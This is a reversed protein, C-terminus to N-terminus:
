KTNIKYKKEDRLWKYIKRRSRGVAKIAARVDALPIEYRGSIYYLEYLQKSSVQKADTNKKKAM